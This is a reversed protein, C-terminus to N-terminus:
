CGTYVKRITNMADIKLYIKKKKKKKKKELVM